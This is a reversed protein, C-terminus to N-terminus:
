GPSNFVDWEGDPIGADQDSKPAGSEMGYGTGAGDM